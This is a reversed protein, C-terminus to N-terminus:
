ALTDGHPTSFVLRDLLIPDVAVGLDVSFDFLLYRLKAQAVDRDMKGGGIEVSSFTKEMDAGRLASFFMGLFDQEEPTAGGVQMPRGANDDM